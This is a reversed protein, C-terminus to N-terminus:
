KVVIPLYITHSHSVTPTSTPTPTNTHTPVATLTHTPTSTHTPTNTHTLVATLTHTPTNTHTPVATLTHTPTNTHTPVATLTHTPTNTHTPVATLTHTPTNTHTPVATFTHTPTPTLTATETPTASPVATPPVFPISGAEFAGIDCVANGDANGDVPRLYNRQDLAPCVFNDGSDIASSNVLLPLTHTWGGHDGLAGLLPDATIIGSGGAYGGQIVSYAIDPWSTSDHIQAGTPATNGWLISNRVVVSGYYNYLGGGAQTATNGSLTVSYLNVVTYDNYIGGGYDAANGSLTVNWLDPQSLENYMGGGIGWHAYAEGSALNNAFTVNTLQPDGKYAYLGGGYTAQNNSFTVDTLIPDSKYSYMAGGAGYDASAANGTFTVRNLRPYSADIYLGGGQGYSELAANGVFSVDTLITQDCDRILMGGGYDSAYGATIIFGDLRAASAGSVVHRSNSTNGTVTALDNLIPAQSDNRDIDGSLITLNAKPNRQELATEGGAFGGYLSVGYKLQFTAATDAALTTPRYVGRKVWVQNCTVSALASQLDTFANSWSTGDNAGTAAADVYCRVEPGPTPTATPTVPTATPPTSGSITFNARFLESGQQYVIATYTGSPRQQGSIYFNFARWILLGNDGVSQDYSAGCGGTVCYSVSNGQPNLWIVSNPNTVGSGAYIKLRAKVDTQQYDPDPEFQYALNTAAMFPLAVFLALALALGISAILRASTRTM